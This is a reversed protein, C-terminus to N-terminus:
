NLMGCFRDRVVGVLRLTEWRSTLAAEVPPVQQNAPLRPIKSKQTKAEDGWRGGWRRNLRRQPQGRARGIGAQVELLRRM